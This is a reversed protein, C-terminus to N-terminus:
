DTSLRQKEEAMAGLAFSTTGSFYPEQIPFYGSFAIGWQNLALDDQFHM